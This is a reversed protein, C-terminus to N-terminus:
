YGNSRTGLKELITEAWPGMQSRSMTTTTHLAELMKEGTKSPTALFSRTGKATRSYPIWKYKLQQKRICCVSEAELLGITRKYYPPALMRKKNMYDAIMQYTQLVTQAPAILKAGQQPVTPSYRAAEPPMHCPIRFVNDQVDCFKWSFYDGCLRVGSVRDRVAFYDDGVLYKIMDEPQPFRQEWQRLAGLGAKGRFHRRESARKATPYQAYLYDWFQKGKEESAAAAIGPNYFTVWGVMFRRKQQTSIDALAMARYIPDADGISFLEVAFEQWTNM